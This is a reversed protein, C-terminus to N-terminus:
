HIKLRCMYIDGPLLYKCFISRTTVRPLHRVTNLSVLVGCRGYITCTESLSWHTEMCVFDGCVSVCVFLETLGSLCFRIFVFRRDVVDTSRCDFHFYIRHFRVTFYFRFSFGLWRAIAIPLYILENLKMWWRMYIGIPKVFRDGPSRGIVCIANIQRLWGFM